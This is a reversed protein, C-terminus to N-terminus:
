NAPANGAEPQAAEVKSDFLAGVAEGTVEPPAFRFELTTKYEDGSKRFGAHEAWSSTWNPNGPLALYYTGRGEKTFPRLNKGNAKLLDGKGGKKFRSWCNFEIMAGDPM